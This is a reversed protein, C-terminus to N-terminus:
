TKTKHLPRTNSNSLPEPLLLLRTCTTAVQRPHRLYVQGIQILCQYVTASPIINSPAQVRMNWRRENPRRKSLFIGTWLMPGAGIDAEEGKGEECDARDPGRTKMAAFPVGNCIKTSELPTVLLLGFSM